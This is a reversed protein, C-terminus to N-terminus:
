VNRKGSHGAIKLLELRGDTHEVVASCFETWCGCNLYRVDSILKDECIHIHGAIVVNVRIQSNRSEHVVLQEYNNIFQIVNKVKTKLYLSLSWQEYGFLKRFLNFIRNVFLALDYMTDGFRYLWGIEKVIGDFQHGHMVLCKDGSATHHIDREKLLINGFHEKIFFELYIDHNGIIYVIKTGKRALRLIKQLVTNFAENWYFDRRLASMDIIDGVLYLKEFEHEKLFDLFVDAQSIRTGIHLDSVFVTRFKM